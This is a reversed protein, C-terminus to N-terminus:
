SHTRSNIQKRPPQTLAIELPWGRKRRAKFLTYTIKTKRCWESICLTTKNVTVFVARSSNQNQEKISAWRCNSPSYGRKNNIRDLSKGEPRDGMDAYFNEFKYWRKCLTIGAGGYRKYAPNNPNTCRQKMNKWVGYISPYHTANFTGATMGHTKKM